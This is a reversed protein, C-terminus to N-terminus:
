FWSKKKEVQFEPASHLDKDFEIFFLLDMRLVRSDFIERARSCIRGRVEPTLQDLIAHFLCSGDGAVSTVCEFPLKNRHLVQNVEGPFDHYAAM